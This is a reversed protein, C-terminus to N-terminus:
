FPIEKTFQKGVYASFTKTPGIYERYTHLGKTTPIISANFAWKNASVKKIKFKQITKWKGSIKEQIHLDGQSTRWNGESVLCPEGIYCVGTSKIHRIGSGDKWVKLDLINAGANASGVYLNNSSDITRELITKSFECGEGIMLDSKDSCPHGVGLNHILEHAIAGSPGNLRSIQALYGFEPYWCSDSGPTTLATDGPQNAFGCYESSLKADIIFLLSKGILTKGNQKIFEARLKPLAEARNSKSGGEQYKFDLDQPAYKSSMTSIDYAGQYTDFVFEKNIKRKMWANTLDLWNSLDGSQLYNHPTVGKIKVYVVHIQFGSIDDPRDKESDPLIKPTPLINLAQNLDSNPTQLEENQQSITVECRGASILKLVKASEDFACIASDKTTLTQPLEYSMPSFFYTPITGISLPLDEAIDIKTMAIKENTVLKRYIQNQGSSGCPSYSYASFTVLENSDSMQPTFSTTSNISSISTPVWAAWPEWSDKGAKKIAYAYYITTPLDGSKSPTVSFTPGGTTGWTTKVIPANPATSCAWASQLNTALPFISLSLALVLLRIINGRTLM